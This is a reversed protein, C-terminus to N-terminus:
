RVEGCSAPSPFLKAPNFRLGAEPHYPGHVRYGYLMGPGCGRVYGHWVHHLRRTLEFRRIEHGDPAHFCLEVKDATSAYLAFNTGNGDFSAGLPYAQGAELHWTHAGHAPRKEGSSKKM